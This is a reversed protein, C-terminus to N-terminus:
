VFLYQPFASAAVLNTVFLTQTELVDGDVALLMLMAALTTPIAPRTICVPVFTSEGM